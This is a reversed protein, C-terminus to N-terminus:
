HNPLRPISKLDVCGGNSNPRSGGAHWCCLLRSTCLVRLGYFATEFWISPNALLVKVRGDITATETLIQLCTALSATVLEFDFLKAAVSDEDPRLPQQPPPQPPRHERLLDDASNQDPLYFNKRGNSSAEGTAETPNNNALPPEFVQWFFRVSNPFDALLAVKPIDGQIGHM